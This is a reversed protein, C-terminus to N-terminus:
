YSIDLGPDDGNLASEGKKIKFNNFRYSLSFILIQSERTFTTHEYFVNEESSTFDYKMTGFVDRIQLTSSLKRKFLDQRAAVDSTFMGERTGQATISPGRYSARLELRTNRFLKVKTSLRTNWNTSSNDVNNGNIEGILKYYYLSGM